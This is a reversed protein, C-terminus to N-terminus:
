DAKTGEISIRPCYSFREPNEFFILLDQRFQDLDHNCKWKEESAWLKLQHLWREWDELDQRPESGTVIQVPITHARINKLGNEKFLSYLKRGIYPDWLKENQLEKAIEFLQRELHESMPFHSLMSHDNESIILRGGPKLLRLFNEFLKEIDSCFELVNQVFVLDFSERPLSLESLKSEVYLLNKLNFPRLQRQLNSLRPKSDDILTLHAAREAIRYALSPDIPGMWAVSSKHDVSSLFFGTNPDSPTKSNETNEVSSNIKSQVKIQSM